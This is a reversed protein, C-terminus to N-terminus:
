CWIGGTGVIQVDGVKWIADSGRQVVTSGLDFGKKRLAAVGDVSKGDRFEQLKVSATAPSSGSSRASAEAAHGAVDAWVGVLRDVASGLAPFETKIEQSAHPPPRPGCSIRLM